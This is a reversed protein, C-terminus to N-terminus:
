AEPLFYKDLPNVEASRVKTEKHVTPEDAKSAYEFQGRELYSLRVADNFIVAGDLDPVGGRAIYEKGATVDDIDTDINVIIKIGNTVGM